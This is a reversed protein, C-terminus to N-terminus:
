KRTRIDELLKRKRDNRKHEMEKNEERIFLKRCNVIIWIQAKLNSITSMKAFNAKIILYQM